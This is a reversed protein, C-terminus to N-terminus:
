ELGLEQDHAILQRFAERANAQLTSRHNLVDQLRVLRKAQEERTNLEGREVLGIVHSRAVGLLDAAQQLTIETDAAILTVAQGNGLETLAERLIQLAAAPLRIMLGSDEIQFDVPEGESTLNTIAKGAERALEADQVTPRISSPRAPEM